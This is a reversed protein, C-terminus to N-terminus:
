RRLDRQRQATDQDIDGATHLLDSAVFYLSDAIRRVESSRPGGERQREGDLDEAAKTLRGHVAALDPM